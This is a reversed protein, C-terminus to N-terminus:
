IVSWNIDIEWNLYSSTIQTIKHGKKNATHIGRIIFLLSLISLEDRGANYNGDYVVQVTEM